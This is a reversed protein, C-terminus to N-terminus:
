KQKGLSRVSAEAIERKFGLGLGDKMWSVSIEQLSLSYIRFINVKGGSACLEAAPAMEGGGARGWDRCILVVQGPIGRALM